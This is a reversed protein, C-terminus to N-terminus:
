NKSSTGESGIHNRVYELGDDFRPILKCAHSRLEDVIDPDDFDKSNRNLFCNVSSDAQALHSIVSSYVLADQPSLDHVGQYRAAADLCEANLPISACSTLLRRRVEELRKAEEDASDILLATLDQFGSLRESYTATRIMQGVEADLDIKMQRRQRHRRVLVEYPEVLSYAPIALRIRGAESLRLIAECSAQQEQILALELVFNTEVYVNM